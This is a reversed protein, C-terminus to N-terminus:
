AWLAFADEYIEKSRAPQDNRRVYASLILQLTQGLRFAEVSTEEDCELLPSFRRVAIDEFMRFTEPADQLKYICALTAFQGLSVAPHGLYTGQKWPDLFRISGDSVFVNDPTFDLLMLASSSSGRLHENNQLRPHLESDPSFKKINNLVEAVYDFHRKVLTARVVNELVNGVIRWTAIGENQLRTSEGLDRMVLARGTSLELLRLDSPVLSGAGIASVNRYGSINAELDSIASINTLDAYKMVLGVNDAGRRFRLIQSGMHGSTYNGAYTAGIANELERINM